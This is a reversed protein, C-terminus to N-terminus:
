SCRTSTKYSEALLAAPTKPLWSARKGLAKIRPVTRSLDNNGESLVLFPDTGTPVFDAALISPALKV